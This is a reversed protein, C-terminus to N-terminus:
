VDVSDLGPDTQEDKYSANSLQDDGGGQNQLSAFCGPIIERAIRHNSEAKALHVMQMMTAIETLDGCGAPNRPAQQQNIEPPCETSQPSKQPATQNAVPNSKCMGAAQQLRDMAPALKSLEENITQEYFQPVSCSPTTQNGPPQPINEMAAYANQRVDTMQAMTQQGPQLCTQGQQMQQQHMMPQQMQQQPMMPQQMQQQPMMPQQMQQQPMMPQQMQQQPMVTQQGPQLCTQGQQMQQQHMMPQQMQQQPMMPQQMQQQHMMPQQMQQQPMMPQQMQQQPMMPQQMQQQPMMPQQMQQPQGQQLADCVTPMTPSKPTCEPQPQSTCAPQPKPQETKCADAGSGNTKNNNNAKSGDGGAKEAEAAREAPSKYDFLGALGWLNYGEQRTTNGKATTAGNDTCEPKQQPTSEPKQQPTSEPKQQSTCEPKQQSTCEPQPQPTCEPQPQPTCEPQPQPTCEPQPQPTCEPQPAMFNCQPSPATIMGGQHCSQYANLMPQQNGPHGGAVFPQAQPFAAVSGGTGTYSVSGKVNHQGYNAQAQMQQLQSTAPNNVPTGIGQM